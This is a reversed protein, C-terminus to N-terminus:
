RAKPAHKDKIFHRRQEATLNKRDFEAFMRLSNPDLSVGEVASISSFGSLGLVLKGAADSKGHNRKVMCVCLVGARRL